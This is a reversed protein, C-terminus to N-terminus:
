THRDVSSKKAEENIMYGGGLDMGTVGGTSVPRPTSGIGNMQKSGDAKKAEANAKNQVEAFDTPSATMGTQSFSRPKPAEKAQIEGINTTPAAAANSSKPMSKAASKAAPAPTTAPAAQTPAAGPEPVAPATQAQSITTLSTSALLALTIARLYM